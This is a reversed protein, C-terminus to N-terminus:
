NVSFGFNNHAGPIVFPINQVENTYQSECFESGCMQDSVATISFFLNDVSTLNTGAIIETWLVSTTTTPLTYSNVNTRDETQNSRWYVKTTINMGVNVPNADWELGITSGTPTAFAISAAFLIPILFFIIKKIM